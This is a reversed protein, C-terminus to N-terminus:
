GTEYFSQSVSSFNNDLMNKCRGHGRTACADEGALKWPTGGQTSGLPSVGSSVRVPVAANGTEHPSPAIRPICGWPGVRRTQLNVMQLFKVNSKCAM